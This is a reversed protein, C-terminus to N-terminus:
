INKIQSGPLMQVLENIGLGSMQIDYLSIMVRTLTKKTHAISPFSTAYGKRGKLCTPTKFDVM